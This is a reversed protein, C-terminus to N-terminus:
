AGLISRTQPKAREGRAPQPKGGLDARKSLPLYFFPFYFTISKPIIKAKKQSAQNAQLPKLNFHRPTIFHHIARFLLTLFQSDGWFILPQQSPDRTGPLARPPPETCGAPHIGAEERGGKGQGLALPSVWHRTGTAGLLQLILHLQARM